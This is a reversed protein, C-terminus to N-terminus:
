RGGLNVAVETMSNLVQIFRAAAEYARQSEILAVAEEDLSVSSVADRQATFSEVLARSVEEDVDVQVIDDGLDTQMDALFQQPSRGGLGPLSDAPIAALLLAIDGEGPAGTGSLALLAPDQDLATDVAIAGAVGAGGPPDPQFLVGGAAGSLDFAGTTLANARNIVETALTDLGTMKQALTEDRVYLIAGLKGERLRDTIDRGDAGSLIRTTGDVAISTGLPLADDGTVLTPGGPLSFHIRGNAGPIATGGTLRVLEEVILTRQDRLPASVDGSSEAAAIERNLRALEEALSNTESVLSQVNQDELGRQARLRDYTGRISRALGEAASVASRRLALNEPQAAVETLATSFGALAAAITGGQDLSGFLSEVQRLGRLREESGAHRGQERQLSAQTFMDEMRQLRAVVVGQDLYGGPVQVPFGPSLQARRRAYGPTFVNSINDGAVQLGVQAANMSQLGLSFYGFLSM